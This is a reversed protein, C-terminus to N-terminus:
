TMILLRSLPLGIVKALRELDDITWKDIELANQELRAVASAEYGIQKGLQSTSLGSKLRYIRILENPLKNENRITELKRNDRLIELLDGLNLDLISCVRRIEGIPLVTVFDRDDGEMHWLHEEPVSALRSVESTSLSRELRRQRVKESIGNKKM